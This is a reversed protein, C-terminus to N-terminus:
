RLTAKERFLDISVKNKAKMNTLEQYMSRSSAYDKKVCVNDTKLKKNEDVLAKNSLELCKYKYKEANIDAASKNRALALAREHELKLLAVQKDYTARDNNRLSQSENKIFDVQEKLMRVETKKADVSVQLTSNKLVLEDREDSKKIMLTLKKEAAALEKKTSNLDMNVDCLLEKTSVWRKYLDVRYYNTHATSTHEVEGDITGSEDSEQSRLDEGDNEKANAAKQLLDHNIKNKKKKAERMVKTIKNKKCKRSSTSLDNESSSDGNFTRQKLGRGPKTTTAHSPMTTPQRTTEYFNFFPLKQNKKIRPFDLEFKKGEM